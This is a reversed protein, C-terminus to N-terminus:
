QNNLKPVDGVDHHSIVTSVFEKMTRNMQTGRESRCIVSIHICSECLNRKTHNMSVHVHFVVINKKDSRELKASRNVNNGRWFLLGQIPAPPNVHYDCYLCDYLRHM